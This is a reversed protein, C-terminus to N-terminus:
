FYKGYEALIEALNKETVGRYASGTAEAIMRGVEMDADDGLGIFFIHIPHRTNIALGTGVVNHKDVRKGEVDLCTTDREFGSCSRIQKEETSQMEILRELPLGRNAKGDTLVVVGRTADPDGPADDALHVAAIIADYLATEGGARAKQVTEAISYRNNVLAAPDVRSGVVNSFTLLGVHTNPTMGDIARIMGQRAQELKNGSMSGSTDLVFTAIGPKKVDDWSKLILEAAAPDIRDPNVIATPKAPDLGFRPSIPESVPLSTVPRFGQAMLQRQQGDEHLFDVWMEAAESQEPSVWPARVLGASYQNATSGERPYMMVIDWQIPARRTEHGIIVPEDGQYLGVLNDEPVFFFHGFRPGNYIKTNMPLTGVMYHDVSRQFQKVYDVVAARSVDAETLQEAPKGAAISYLTFLVSRGTTSTTPDTYAILPQRGWEAKACPYKSWGEPDARLALIDSYGIEKQPWGLCEAMERFTAIGVWTRAISRSNALDVVPRGVAANAHVLWHDASPTVIVPDPVKPDIAAGRTVRSILDDTQESSGYGYFKVEIRRGSATKLRRRNFEEAFRPLLEARAVHSSGWHVVVVPAPERPWLVFLMIAIGAAWVAAIGALVQKRTMEFAPM